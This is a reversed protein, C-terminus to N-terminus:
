KAAQTLFPQVDGASVAVSLLARWVGLRALADDIEAQALIREAEALEVINGLGAKYRANAQQESARAAEVEIPTNQAVRRVAALTARAQEMQGNLDQIIQEYHASEARENYAEIRKRERISAFDFLPFTVAM